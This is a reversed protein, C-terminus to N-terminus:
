ANNNQINYNSKLFNSMDDKAKKKISEAVNFIIEDSFNLTDTLNKKIKFYSISADNENTINYDLNYFLQELEINTYEVRLLKLNIEKVYKNYPLYSKIAALVQSSVIIGSWLFPFQKWLAWAGISTSSAIALIININRERKQFKDVIYTLIFTKYQTDCLFIWIKDRM